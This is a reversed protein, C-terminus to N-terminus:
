STFETLMRMTEVKLGDEEMASKAAASQMFNQFAAVDPVELILGTINPNKPDRFTRSKVGLEGFMERRSGKGRSWAKAWHEGNKVEHFVIMTTMTAAEREKASNQDRFSIRCTSEAPRFNCRGRCFRHVLQSVIVHRLISAAPIPTVGDRIYAISTLIRPRLRAQAPHRDSRPVYLGIRLIKAISDRLHARFRSQPIGHMQMHSIDAIFPEQQEKEHHQERANEPHLGAVSANRSALIESLRYICRAM